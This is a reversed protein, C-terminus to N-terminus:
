WRLPHCPEHPEEEQNSKHAIPNPVGHRTYSSPHPSDYLHGIVLYKHECLAAGHITDNVTALLIKLILHM